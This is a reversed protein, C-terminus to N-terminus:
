LIEFLHESSSKESHEIIFREFLDLFINLKVFENNYDKKIQELIKCKDEQKAFFCSAEDYAGQCLLSSIYNSYKNHCDYEQISLSKEAFMQAKICKNQLIYCYSLGDYINGIHSLDKLEIFYNLAKKYYNEAHELAERNYFMDMYCLAISQFCCAKDRRGRYLQSLSTFLEIAQSINGTKKLLTAKVFLLNYFNISRDNYNRCNTYQQVIDNCFELDEDNFEEDKKALVYLSFLKIGTQFYYADLALYPSYYYDILNNIEDKYKYINPFDNWIIWYKYELYLNLNFNNQNIFDTKFISDLEEFCTDEYNKQRNRLVTRKQMLIVAKFWLDNNNFFYHEACDIWKITDIDCSIESSIQCLQICCQKASETIKLSPQNIKEFSEWAKIYSEYSSTLQSNYFYLINAVFLNIKFSDEPLLSIGEITLTNLINNIKALVEPGTYKSINYQLSELNDYVYDIVAQKYESRKLSLEEMDEEKYVFFDYEAKQIADLANIHKEIKGSLWYYNLLNVIVREKRDQEESNPDFGTNLLNIFNHGFTSGKRVLWHEHVMYVFGSGDLMNNQMLAALLKNYFIISLVKYTQYCDFYKDGLNHAIKDIREKTRIDSNDLVEKNAFIWFSESPVGENLAHTIVEIERVIENDLLAVFANISHHDFNSIVIGNGQDRLRRIINGLVASELNNNISPIRLYFNNLPSLDITTDNIDDLVSSISDDILCCLKEVISDIFTLIRFNSQLNTLILSHRLDLSFVLIKMKIDKCKDAIDIIEHKTFEGLTKGIIAIFIDSKQIQRDYISQSNQYEDECLFLRVIYEKASSLENLRRVYDGIFIREKEFEEISSAIFINIVKM